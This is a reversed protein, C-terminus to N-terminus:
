TSLMQQAKPFTMSALTVDADEAAHFVHVRRVSERNRSQSRELGCTLDFDKGDLAATTMSCLLLTKQLHSTMQWDDSRLPKGM